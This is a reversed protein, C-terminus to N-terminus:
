KSEEKLWEELEELTYFIPVGVEGALDHEITAGTSAAWDPTMLIADCRQLIALDGDLWVKDDTAGQFFRTNTHPCIAAAGMLWVALALEEARRINCEIDWASDGRYPGAVYVVKM